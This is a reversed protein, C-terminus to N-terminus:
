TSSALRLVGWFLAILGGSIACCAIFGITDVRDWKTFEWRSAPFLKTHDFRHPNRRTEEMAEAELTPTAGVPTKMKGYFQDVIRKDPARTFFSVVILIFFPLFADFFFRAAKRDAVGLSAVDVGAMDLIYLESHFRGTGFVPSMPDDPRDRVVREFFVGETRGNAVEVQRLLSEHRTLAPIKQAILPGAINVVACVAVATWVAPATLRRWFFILVVAAGFPVNVTILEQIVAFVNNMNTAAVVGVALIVVIAWRGVKVTDGTSGNKNFYPYVNRAFLASAAMAQAAVTSMNAALVGALMLGLAGPGLLQRSMLGWIADPDALAGQGSYM